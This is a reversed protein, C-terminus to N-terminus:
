SELVIFLMAPVVIHNRINNCVDIRIAFSSIIVIIITSNKKIMTLIALSATTILGVM